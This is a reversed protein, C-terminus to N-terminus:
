TSLNLYSKPVHSSGSIGKVLFLCMLARGVRQDGCANPQVKRGARCWWGRGWFTRRSREAGDGGWEWGKRVPSSQFCEKKQSEWATGGWRVGFLGAQGSFDPLIGLPLFGQKLSGFDLLM